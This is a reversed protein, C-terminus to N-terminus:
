EDKFEHFYHVPINHHAALQEIFKVNPETNRVQELTKDHLNIHVGKIHEPRVGTFVQFEGHTHHISPYRTHSAAVNRIMHDPIEGSNLIQETQHSATHRADTESFGSNQLHKVLDNYHHLHLSVNLDHLALYKQIEEPNTLAEQLYQEPNESYNFSDQPTFVTHNLVHPHLELYDKGYEPALGGVRRTGGAAYVIPHAEHYIGLKQEVDKQVDAHRKIHDQSFDQHLGSRYEGDQLTKLLRKRSLNISLQFNNKFHNWLQERQDPTLKDHIEKPMHGSLQDLLKHAIHHGVQEHIHARLKHLSDIAEEVHHPTLPNVSVDKTDVLEHQGKYRHANYVKGDQQHVVTPTLTLKSLDM